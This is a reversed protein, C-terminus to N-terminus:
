HNNWSQGSLETSSSRSLNAASAVEEAETLDESKAKPAEVAYQKFYPSLHAANAEFSPYLNTQGDYPSEANNYAASRTLLVDVTSLRVARAKGM